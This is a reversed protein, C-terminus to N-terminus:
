FGHKHYIMKLSNCKKILNGYLYVIGYLVYNRYYYSLAWMDDEDDWVTNSNGQYTQYNGITLEMFAKFTDDYSLTLNM